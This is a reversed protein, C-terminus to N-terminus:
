NKTVREATLYTSISKSVALQNEHVKKSSRVGEAVESMVPIKLQDSMQFVQVSKPRFAHFTKTNLSYKVTQSKTRLMVWLM